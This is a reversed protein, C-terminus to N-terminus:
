ITKPIVHLRYNIKFICSSTCLNCAFIIGHKIFSKLMGLNKTDVPTRPGIAQPYWPVITCLGIFIGKIEVLKLNRDTVRSLGM